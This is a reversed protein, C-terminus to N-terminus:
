SSNNQKFFISYLIFILKFSAWIAWWSWVKLEMLRDQFAKQQDQLSKQFAFQQDQLSKQLAIQQDQFSKQLEQVSEKLEESDDKEEKLVLAKNNPIYDPNGARM